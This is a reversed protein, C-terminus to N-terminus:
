RDEHKSIRFDPLIHLVPVVRSVPRKSTGKRGARPPRVVPRTPTRDASIGKTRQWAEEYRTGRPSSWCRPRPYAGVKSLYSFFCSLSNVLKNFTYPKLGLPRVHELFEVVDTRATAHLSRARNGVQSDLFRSVDWLYSDITGKAKDEEQLHARYDEVVGDARCHPALAVTPTNM